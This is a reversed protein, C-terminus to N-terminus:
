FSGSSLELEVMDGSEGPRLVCEFDVWDYEQEAGEFKSSEVVVRPIDM